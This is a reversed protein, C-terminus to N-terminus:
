LRREILGALQRFTRVDQLEYDPIEVDFREELESLLDMAQLSNIGLSEFFDDDADLASVDHNFHQGALEILRAIMSKSNTM